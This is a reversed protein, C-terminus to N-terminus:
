DLDLGTLSKVSLVVPGHPLLIRENTMVALYCLVNTQSKNDYWRYRRAIPAVWAQRTLYASYDGGKDNTLDHLEWHPPVEPWGDGIEDIEDKSIGWGGFRTANTVEKTNKLATKGNMWWLTPAAFPLRAGSEDKMANKLKENEANLRHM